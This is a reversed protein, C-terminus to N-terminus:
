LKAVAESAKAIMQAGCRVTLGGHGICEGAAYRM